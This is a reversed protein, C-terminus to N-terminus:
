AGGGPAKAYILALIREKLEKDQHIKKVVQEEGQGLNVVDLLSLWAGKQVIIDLSKACRVIDLEHDVGMGKVFPVRVYRHPVTLAHAKINIILEYWKESVDERSLELRTDFLDEFRRSASQTGGRSNLKARVQSTTIVCSGEQLAPKLRQLFSWAMDNWDTLEKEGKPRLATFSDILMVADKHSKVFDLFDDEAESGLLVPLDKTTVGVREMYPVDIVENAWLAVPRGERQASAGLEYLLGSKGSSEPGNLDVLGWPLRGLVIDLSPINTWASTGHHVGRELAAEDGFMSALRSSVTPHERIFDKLM